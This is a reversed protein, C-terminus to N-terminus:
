FCVRFNLILLRYTSFYQIAMGSLVTKLHFHDIFYNTLPETSIVTAKSYLFLFVQPLVCFFRSLLRNEYFM